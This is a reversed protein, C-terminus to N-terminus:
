RVLCDPVPSGVNVLTLCDESSTVEEIRDGIQLKERDVSIQIIEDELGSMTVALSAEALGYVPCMAKSELHYDSFFRMFDNCIVANIPEAGNYILRVSSLDYHEILSPNIHKLTYKYGFNPSCLVTAQFEQTKELWLAPRRVFLNTELIVHNVGEYLPCLHFGILGMDHTLPMWSLLTDESSYGASKGIANVNSLLNGHTLVIGKPTGTSGSSFQIFAICEKDVQHIEGSTSCALLDNINIHKAAIDSSVSVLQNDNAYLGIKNLAIEESVLYPNTLLRWVNFLKRKHEDNKGINLPIPVYGGLLCSWFAIIFSKNDDIQFVIEAGVPIGRNQLLGAGKCAYSYLDEYSLFEEDRSGSVFTIGKDSM